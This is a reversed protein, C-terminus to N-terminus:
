RAGGAERRKATLSTTEAGPALQAVQAALLAPRVLVEVFGVEARLPLLGKGSAGVGLADDQLLQSHLLGGRRGNGLM